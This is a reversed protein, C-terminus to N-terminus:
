NYNRWKFYIKNKDKLEWLTILDIGLEEEIAKYEILERFCETIKSNTRERALDDCLACPNYDLEDFTISTNEVDNKTLRSM